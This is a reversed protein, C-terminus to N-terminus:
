KYIARLFFYYLQELFIARHKFIFILKQRKSSLNKMAHKIWRNCIVNMLLRDYRNTSKHNRIYIPPVEIQNWNSYKLRSLSGQVERVRIHNDMLLAVFTNKNNLVVKLVRYWFDNAENFSANEVYSTSDMWKRKVFVNSGTGMVFEHSSITKLPQDLLYADSTIPTLIGNLKSIKPREINSPFLQIGIVLFDIHHKLALQNAKQILQPHYLDDADLFSIFDGSTKKFGINRAFGPGCNEKLEIIEVRIDKFQPSNEELFAKVIQLSEDTSKDDVIILEYPLKTQNIVSLLTDEVYPAKNYLPIVISFNM